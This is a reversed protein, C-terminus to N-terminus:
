VYGQRGEGADAYHYMHNLIKLYIKIHEYIPM